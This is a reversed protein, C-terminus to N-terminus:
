DDCNHKFYESYENLTKQGQITALKIQKPTLPNSFTKIITNWKPYIEDALLYGHDYTNRGLTSILTSKGLTSDNFLHSREVVNLGNNSGSMKFLAHCIYLDYLVVAELTIIPKRGKGNCAGHYVKSCYNWEQHM